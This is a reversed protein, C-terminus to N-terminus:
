SQMAPLPLLKQLPEQVPSRNVQFFGWNECADQFRALTEKRRKGDLGALDIVPM